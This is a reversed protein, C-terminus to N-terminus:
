RKHKPLKSPAKDRLKVTSGEEGRLINRISDAPLNQTLDYEDAKLIRDGPRIGVIDSSAM